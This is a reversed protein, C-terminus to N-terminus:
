LYKLSIKLAKVQEDIEKAEPKSVFKKALNLAKIQEQIDAKSVVVETPAIVPTSPERKIEIKFQLENRLDYLKPDLGEGKNTNVILEAAQIADANGTLKALLLTNESHHNEDENEDYQAIEKDGLVAVLNNPVNNILERVQGIVIDQRSATEVQRKEPLAKNTYFETLIEKNLAKNGRELGMAEYFANSNIDVGYNAALSQINKFFAEKSKSKEALKLMAQVIQDGDTLFEQKEESPKSEEIVPIVVPPAVPEDAKPYVLQPVLMAHNAAAFENIRDQVTKIKDVNALAEAKYQLVLQDRSADLSDAQDKLSKLKNEFEAMPDTLNNIDLGMPELIRVRASEMTSFNARFEYFVDILKNRSYYLNGYIDGASGTWENITNIWKYADSYIESDPITNYDVKTYRGDPDGEHDYKEANYKTIAAQMKVPDNKHEEVIKAIKDNQAKIQNTRKAELRKNHLDNLMSIVNPKLIKVNQIATISKQLSERRNENYIIQGELKEKAELIDWDAKEEPDTILEKQLQKPDFDRLDLEQVTSSRNWIENIRLTKQNLYEFIVPDASNFCQPYVLRVNAHRNGQRWIRGEIQAADTPNWDYYLNFLDSANDQLDVGVSITSSGILVIVDGTLFRQKTSEVAAKGMQGNIIGVQRENLGFEKVLYERLLVFYEVGANQYIVHGSLKMNNARQFDIVSKICGMAYMLKPSSQIYDKYNPLSVTQGSAKGCAKYYLYPSYTIQRIMSLGRLIRVGLSEEEDLDEESYETGDDKANKMESIMRTRRSDSLNDREGEFEKGTIREWEAVLAEDDLIEFDVEEQATFEGGCLNLYSAKPDSMYKKVEAVLTEQEETMPLTTQISHQKSPYVNKVPRILSAGEDKKDWLTYIFQRLQSLNNYGTLVIGKVVTKQPTYKIDYNIKMFTDFFDVMNDLGYEELLAYNTFTLMSFVELPSNTFPTATLLVINRNQFRSQIYHSLVFASLARQSPTAGSKLEYKAKERKVKVNGKNDETEGVIQGKVFVFLKKYLHAEDFSAWEIGLDEINLKANKMSSSVTKEIKIQLAAVDRKSEKEAALEGQSLIKYLRSTLEEKFEEGVGLRQLGVETTVFVTGDPFKKIKGTSYIYYNFEERLYAILFDKYPKPRAGNQLKTDNELIWQRQLGAINLAYIKTLAKEQAPTLKDADITKVYDIAEQIATFTAEETNTYVKLEDRVITPNLNFLGVINMHPIAGHMYINKEKNFGGKMESIWKFYTNTPVVFVGRKAFGNYYAQSWAAIAALTKGVGVGYALGASKKEQAFAVGQRQTANLYLPAAGKFTKSMRFCVPIKELNAVALSNYKNNWLYSFKAQDEPLLEDALFKAFLEDGEEKTRQRINIEKKEERIQWEKPMSRDIKYPKNELYYEIIEFSTTKKFMDAPQSRLWQSFAGVLSTSSYFEPKGFRLAEIKFEKAFNSHPLLIIREDGVLGKSKPKVEELFALQRDFLKEGFKDVIMDRERKLDSIKKSINGSQYTYRYIWRNDDYCLLGKDILDQKSNKYEDILNKYNLEPNSFYYAELEDRSIHRNYLDHIEKFSYIEQQSPNEIPKKKSTSVRRVKNMREHQVEEMDHKFVEEIIHKQSETAPIPMQFVDALKVPSAEIKDLDDMTGKVVIMEDDYRGKKTTQEGLVKSPNQKFFSDAIFPNAMTETKPTSNQQVSKIRKDAESAIKAMNKYMRQTNRRILGGRRMQVDSNNNIEKYKGLEVWVPIEKVGAARAAILRRRNMSLYKNQTSNYVATLPEPLYGQKFWEIYKQTTPLNLVSEESQWKESYDLKTPDLMRLEFVYAYYLDPDDIMLRGEEFPNSTLHTINNSRALYTAKIPLMSAPDLEDHKTQLDALLLERLEGGYFLSLAHGSDARLRQRYDSSHTRDYAPEGGQAYYELEKDPINPLTDSCGQFVIDNSVKEL